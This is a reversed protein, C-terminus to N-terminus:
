FYVIFLLAKVFISFHIIGGKFQYHNNKLFIFITSFYYIPFYELRLRLQNICLNSLILHQWNNIKSSYAIEEEIEFFFIIEKPFKLSLHKNM